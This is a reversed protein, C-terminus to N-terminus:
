SIQIDELFPTFLIECRRQITVVRSMMSSMPIHLIMTLWVISKLPLLFNSDGGYITHIVDWMKKAFDCGKIDDFKSYSLASVIELM